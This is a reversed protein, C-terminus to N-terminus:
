SLSHYHMLIPTSVDPQELHTRPVPLVRETALCIIVRRLGEIKGVAHAIARRQQEDPIVGEIYAVGDEVTILVADIDEVVVATIGAIKRYLDKDTDHM